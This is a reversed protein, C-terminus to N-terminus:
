IEVDFEFKTHEFHLTNHAVETHDALAWYDATNSHANYTPFNSSSVDIRLRDGAQLTWAIQDLDFELLVRQGAVYNECLDSISVITDRQCWATGNRIVDVRVLFATDPCDSSVELTAHIKGDLAVPADFEDSVFSLVDPRFAPAPQPQMGGNGSQFVNAGGPFYAPHEPDYKYTQSGISPASCLAGGYAPYLALRSNARAGIDSANLWGDGARYYTAQGKKVHKLPTGLRIHDFWEVEVSAHHSDPLMAEHEPPTEMSHWWPGIYLASDPRIDDNLRKWYDLTGCYHIDYFGGVLLLPIKIDEPAHTAYKFGEDTHWFDDDPHNNNFINYIEPLEEGYVRRDVTILPREKLAKGMMIFKEKANVHNRMFYRALWLTYLDHKPTNREYCIHFQNAPMVALAVAKVDPPNTGVYTSHIYSKYSAGYLYIEGNYWSQVRIWDLTDLSDTREYKMMNRFVGESSGSGRSHQNVVIYGHELFDTFPPKLYSPDFPSRSTPPEYPTRHFVVPYNKGDEYNKPFMTRTYLLTGDSVRVMDESFTPTFNM